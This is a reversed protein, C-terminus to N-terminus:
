EDFWKITKAEDKSLVEPLPTFRPGSYDGDTITEYFMEKPRCFVKGSSACVYVVVNEGTETHLAECLKLYLGGKYHQYTKYQRM